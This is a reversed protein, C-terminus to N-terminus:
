VTRQRPTPTVHPPRTVNLQRNTAQNLPNRASRYRERFPRLTANRKHHPRLWCSQLCRPRRTDRRAADPQQCRRGRQHEATHPELGGGPLGNLGAGCAALSRGHDVLVM